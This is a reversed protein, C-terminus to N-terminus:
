PLLRYTISATGLRVSSNSKGLFYGGWYVKTRVTGFVGKTSEPGYARIIYKVLKHTPHKKDGISYNGNKETRVRRRWM